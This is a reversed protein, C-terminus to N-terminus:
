PYPCCPATCAHRTALPAHRTPAGKEKKQSGASLARYFRDPAVGRTAARSSPLSPPLSPSPSSHRCARIFAEDGPGGVATVNAGWAKAMQIAVHGTGGAGATILVAAGRPWPAGTKRLAQLSTLGVLPVAAAQVWSLSEPKLGVQKEDSLTFQAYRRPWPTQRVLPHTSPPM